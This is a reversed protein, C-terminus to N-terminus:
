HDHPVPTSPGHTSGHEPSYGLLSPDMMGAIMAIHGFVLFLAVCMAHVRRKDQAHARANVWGLEQLAIWILPLGSILYCGVAVVDIATRWQGAQTIPWVATGMLYAIIGIFYLGVTLGAAHNLRHVWGRQSRDLLIFLETIALTEALIVPVAMFMLLNWPQNHALLEMYHTMNMLSGKRHPLHQDGAGIIQPQLEDDFM